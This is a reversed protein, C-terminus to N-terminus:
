EESSYLEICWVRRVCCVCACMACVGMSVGERVTRGLLVYNLGEESM